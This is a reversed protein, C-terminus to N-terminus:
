QQKATGQKLIENLEEPVEKGLQLKLQRLMNANQLDDKKINYAKEVWEHAYNLLENQRDKYYKAKEFDKSKVAQNNLDQYSRAEMYYTYGMANILSFSNLNKEYANGILAHAEQYKGANILYTAADAIFEPLTDFKAVHEIAKALKASDNEQAAAGLELSYIYMIDDSKKINKKGKALIQNCKEINGQKSYLDYAILYINVFNTNANIAEDLVALYAEEGDKQKMMNALQYYTTGVFQKYTPELGFCKITARYYKEAKEYDGAKHAAVAQNYIPEGCLIQGEKPNTLGADTEINPNLELAKYFSEYAIWAADPTKSVYSPNKKTREEDRSYIRLYVNGRYLWAKANDENGPMLLDINKQALPINKNQLAMWVDQLSQAYSGIALVFVLTFLFLKKM